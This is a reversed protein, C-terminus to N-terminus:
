SPADGSRRSFVLERANGTTSDYLIRANYAHALQLREAAEQRDHIGTLLDILDFIMGVGRTTQGGTPASPDVATVAGDSHKVERLWLNIRSPFNNLSTPAAFTVRVEEARDQMAQALDIDFAESDFFVLKEQSNIEHGSASIPKIGVAPGPKHAVSDPASPMACSMLGVLPLVVFKRLCAFAKM